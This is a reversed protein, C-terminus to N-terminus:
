HTYTETPFKNFHDSALYLNQIELLSGLSTSAAPRIASNQTALLLSLIKDYTLLSQLLLM